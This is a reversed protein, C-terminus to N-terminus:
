PGIAAGVLDGGGKGGDGNKGPGAQAAVDAGNLTASGGPAVYIGGADGEVTGQVKASARDEVRLQRAIPGASDPVTNGSLTLGTATLQARTDLWIGGGGAADTAANGTFACDVLEIKLKSGVTLAAKLAQKAGDVRVQELRFTKGHDGAVIQIPYAGGIGSLVLNRGTNGSDGQLGGGAADIRFGDLTSGNGTMRVAFGPGACSLVTKPDAV